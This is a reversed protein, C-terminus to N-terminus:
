LKEEPLSFTVFGGNEGPKALIVTGCARAQTIFALLADYQYGTEGALAGLSLGVAGASRLLACIRDIPHAAVPETM